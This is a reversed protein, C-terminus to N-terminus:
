ETRAFEGHYHKAAQCYAEHAAEPTLHYGLIIAKGHIRIEARWKKWEKNWSVGKFGSKNSKQKGRNRQNESRNAFRLNEDRNDLTDGNIHDVERRDGFEVGLVERHMRQVVRRGDSLRVKRQAYFSRTYNSWGAYWRFKSLEWYRSPSVKAFQGQTLPIEYYDQDM